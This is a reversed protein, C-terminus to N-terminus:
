AALCTVHTCTRPWTAQSSSHSSDRDAKPGGADGASGRLTWPLGRVAPPVSRPRPASQARVSAPRAGPECHSLVAPRAVAAQHSHPQNAVSPLAGAVCAGARGGGSGPDSQAIYVTLGGAVMEVPDGSLNSNFSIFHSILEGLDPEFQFKEITHLLSVTPICTNNDNQIVFSSGKGKDRRTFKFMPVVQDLRQGRVVWQVDREPWQSTWVATAPGPEAQGLRVWGGAAGGTRQDRTIEHSGPVTIRTPPFCSCVHDCSADSGASPRSGSTQNMWVRLLNAVCICLITLM